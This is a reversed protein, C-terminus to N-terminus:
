GLRNLHTTLLVLMVCWITENDKSEAPGTELFRDQRVIIGGDTETVKVVPYGM